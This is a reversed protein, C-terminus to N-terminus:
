VIHALLQEGGGLAEQRGFANVLQISVVSAPHASTGQIPVEGDALGSKALPHEGSL